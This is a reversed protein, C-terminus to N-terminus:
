KPIDNLIVIRSQEEKEEEGFLMTKKGLLEAAKIRIKTEKCERMTQTLFALIEDKDAIEDRETVGGVDTEEKEDSTEDTEQIESQLHKIEWLIKENKMLRKGELQGNKYGAEAAADTPDRGRAINKCFVTQKKTLRRM